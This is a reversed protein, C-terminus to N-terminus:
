VNYDRLCQTTSLELYKIVRNYCKARHFDTLHLMDEKREERWMRWEHQSDGHFRREGENEFSIINHCRGSSANVEEMMKNFMDVKHLYNRYSTTPPPGDSPRWALTPAHMMKVFGITDQVNYTMEHAQIAGLWRMMELKFDKAEIKRVDNLGFIAVVDVGKNQLNYTQTYNLRGMQMTGGCITVLDVHFLNRVSNELWADHLTSSGVVVKYRDGQIERSHRVKCTVCDMYPQDAVELKRRAFM